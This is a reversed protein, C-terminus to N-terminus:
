FYQKITAPFSFLTRVGRIRMHFFLLRIFFSAIHSVYFFSCMEAAKEGVIDNFIKMFGKKEQFMKQFKGRVHMTYYDIQDIFKLEIKIFTVVNKPFDDYNM